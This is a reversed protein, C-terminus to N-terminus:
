YKECVIAGSGSGATITYFARLNTGSSTVLGTNAYNTAFSQASVSSITGWVGNILSQFISTSLGSLAAHQAKLSIQYLGKPILTATGSLAITTLTPVDKLTLEGTITTNNFLVNDTTKVAQDLANAIDGSGTNITPATVKGTVTVNNMEPSDKFYADNAAIQNHLVNTVPTATTNAQSLPTYAM